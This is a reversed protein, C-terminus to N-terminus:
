CSIHYTSLPGCEQEVFPSRMSLDQSDSFLCLFHLIYHDMSLPIQSAQSAASLNFLYRLLFPIICHIRLVMSVNIWVGSCFVVEWTNEPGSEHM